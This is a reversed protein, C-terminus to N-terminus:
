EDFPFTHVSLVGVAFVGDGGQENFDQHRHTSCPTDVLLCCFRENFVLALGIYDDSCDFAVRHRNLHFDVVLATGILCAFFLCM